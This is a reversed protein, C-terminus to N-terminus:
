LTVRHRIREVKDSLDDVTDALYAIQCALPSNSIRPGPVPSTHPSEECLISKIREALANIQENLIEISKQTEVIVDQVTPFVDTQMEPPAEPEERLSMSERIRNVVNVPRGKIPDYTGNEYM